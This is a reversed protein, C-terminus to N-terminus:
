YYLIADSGIFDNAIATSGIDTTTSGDTEFCTSNSGHLFMAINVINGSFDYHPMFGTYTFISVDSSSIHFVMSNYGGITIASNTTFKNPNVVAALKKALSGWTEGSAITVSVQSLPADPIIIVGKKQETTLDDYDDYSMRRANSLNMITQKNGDKDVVMAGIINKPTPM